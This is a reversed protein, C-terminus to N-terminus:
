ENKWIFLANGQFDYLWHVAEFVLVYKSDSYRFVDGFGSYYNGETINFSRMVVVTDFGLYINGEIIQTIPEPNESNNHSGNESQSSLYIVSGIWYISLAVISLLIIAIIRLKKKEM